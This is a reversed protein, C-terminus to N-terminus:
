DNRRAVFLGLRQSKDNDDAAEDACEITEGNIRHGNRAEDFQAEVADRRDRAKQDIEGPRLGEDAQEDHGVDGVHRDCTGIGSMARAAPMTAMGSTNTEMRPKM